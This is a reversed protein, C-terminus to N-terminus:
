EAGFRDSDFSKKGLRKAREIQKAYMENDARSRSEDEIVRQMALVLRKHNELQNKLCEEHWSIPMAPM